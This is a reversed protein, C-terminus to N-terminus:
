LSGISALSTAVEVSAGRLEPAANLFLIMAQAMNAAAKGTVTPNESM